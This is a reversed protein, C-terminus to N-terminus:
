HPVPMHYFGFGLMIYLVILMLGELWNSAGDYTLARTVMVALGIAVIEFHSFVLNMDQGLFYAAFILVPGVLLAVQTSAGMTIGLALDMQDKRAFRVANFLEAANGVLALLFVGSFVPTFGLRESAPEIAGTLLESMFALGVAVGALIM